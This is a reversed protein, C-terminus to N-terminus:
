ASYVINIVCCLIHPENLNSLSMIYLPAKSVHCMQLQGLTCVDSEILHTHNVLCDLLQVLVLSPRLYNEM